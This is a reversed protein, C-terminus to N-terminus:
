LHVLKFDLKKVLTKYYRRIDRDVKSIDKYEQLKQILLMDFVSSEMFDIETRFGCVCLAGTRELFSVINRRDTNLTQCSGFHIIKDECKGELMDGLEELSIYEKGIRITGPEGHFALYLISYASYKKQKWFGLYYELTARTACSKYIHKIDCNNQLFILAAHISSMDRLDKEWHGELCFIHKKYNKAIRM